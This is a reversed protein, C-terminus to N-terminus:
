GAVTWSTGEKSDKLEIGCAALADRLRDSTAWDKGKRAQSRLAIVREIAEPPPLQALDVAGDGLRAEALVRQLRDVFDAELEVVPEALWS